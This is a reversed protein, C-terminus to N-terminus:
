PLGYEKWGQRFINLIPLPIIITRLCAVPYENQAM